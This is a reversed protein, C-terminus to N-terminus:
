RVKVVKGGIMWTKVPGKTFACVESVERNFAILGGHGGLGLSRLLNHLLGGLGLLDRLLRGGLLRRLLLSRGKLRGGTDRSVVEKFREGSM